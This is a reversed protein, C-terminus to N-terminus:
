SVLELIRRRRVVDFYPEAAKVRGLKVELADPSPHRGTTVADGFLLDALSVHGRKRVEDAEHRVEDNLGWWAHIMVIAPVEGASKPPRSFYGSRLNSYRVVQGNLPAEVKVDAAGPPMPSRAAAATPFAVVALALLVFLCRTM